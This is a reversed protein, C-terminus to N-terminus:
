QFLSQFLDKWDPNEADILEIKWARRWKKIQKERVIAAEANDHFKVYVIRDCGYRKAFGDVVKGRHETIRRALDSSVGTYLTGNVGNSLIYVCFRKM